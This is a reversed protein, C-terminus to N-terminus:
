PSVMNRICWFYLVVHGTLYALPSLLCSGEGPFPWVRLLASAYLSPIRDHRCRTNRRLPIDTETGQLSHPQCGSAQPSIPFASALASWWSSLLLQTARGPVPGQAENAPPNEGLHLECAMGALGKCRRAGRCDTDETDSTKSTELHHTSGSPMCTASAEEVFRKHFDLLSDLFFQAHVTMLLPFGWRPSLPQLEKLWWGSKHSFLCCLRGAWGGSLGGYGGGSKKLFCAPLLGTSGAQFLARSSCAQSQKRM